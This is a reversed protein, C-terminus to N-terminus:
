RRVIPKRLSRDAAPPRIVGSASIRAASRGFDERSVTRVLSVGDGGPSPVGDGDLEVARLRARVFRGGATITARLVASTSLNGGLAFGRYGLFNGLSYAIMRGRYFEIGRLVHPGTGIVIDAGADVLAHALVRIDGQPDGFVSEPGHGVHIEDAGQAGAHFYAIVLDAERAARRVLARVAPLDLSDACWQYPAFGLVAVAVRGVHLIAFQGPLGTYPLHVRRLAAETDVLGIEGYDLTHNDALNAVTFGAATLNAAYSPPTEFAFCESSSSGACKSPGVDTLTGEQDVISVDARLYRATAAFLGRGNAPPLGYQPSGMMTDGVAALTIRTGPAVRPATSVAEPGAAGTTGSRSGASARPRAGARGGTTAAGAGHGSGSTGSVASVAVAVLVVVGGAIALAALRRRPLRRRRARRHEAAGGRADRNRQGEASM